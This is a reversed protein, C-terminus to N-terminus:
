ISLEHVYFSHIVDISSINFLYLKGAELYVIGVSENGDERIFTFNYKYAIIQIQEDYEQPKTLYSQTVPLSSVLLISVIISAFLIWLIEIRMQNQIKKRPVKSSARYRILIIAMLGFVVSAIIFSFFIVIAFLLQVQPTYTSGKPAAAMVEKINMLMILYFIALILDTVVLRKM